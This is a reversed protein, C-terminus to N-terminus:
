ELIHLSTEMVVGPLDNYHWAQFHIAISTPRQVDITFTISRGPRTGSFLQETQLHSCVVCGDEGHNQATNKCRKHPSMLNDRSQMFGVHEKVV